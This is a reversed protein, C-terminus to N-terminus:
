FRRPVAIIRDITVTEIKKENKRVGWGGEGTRPLLGPQKYENIEGGKDKREDRASPM